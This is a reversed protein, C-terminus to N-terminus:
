SLETVSKSNPGFRSRFRSKKSLYDDVLWFYCCMWGDMRGGVWGDLWGDTWGGVWGGMMPENMRGTENTRTPLHLGHPFPEPSTLRAWILLLTSSSQKATCHGKKKKCLESTMDMTSPQSTFALGCRRRSAWSGRWRLTSESLKSTIPSRQDWKKAVRESGPSSPLNGVLYEICANHTYNLYM